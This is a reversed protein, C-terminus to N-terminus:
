SKNLFLAYMAITKLCLRLVRCTKFFKGSLCDLKTFFEIYSALRSFLRHIQQKKRTYIPIRFPRRLFAFRLNIRM